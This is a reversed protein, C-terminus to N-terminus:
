ASHSSSATVGGNSARSTTSRPAESRDNSAGVGARSASASRSSATRSPPASPGAVSRSTSGGLTTGRQFRAAKSLGITGSARAPRARRAGTARRLRIVDWAPRRETGDAARAM